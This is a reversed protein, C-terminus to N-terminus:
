RGAAVWGRPIREGRLRKRLEAGEGRAL